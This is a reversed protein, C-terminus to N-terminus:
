PNPTQATSQNFTDLFGLFKPSCPFAATRHRARFLQHQFEDNRLLSFISEKIKRLNSIRPTRKPKMNKLHLNISYTLNNCKENSADLHTERKKLKERGHLSRKKINQLLFLPLIQFTKKFFQGTLTFRGSPPTSIQNTTFNNCFLSANGSKAGIRHCEHPVMAARRWTKNKENEGLLPPQPWQQQTKMM